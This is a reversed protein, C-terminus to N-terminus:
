AKVSRLRALQPAHDRAHVLHFRRWQRANLPGLIPHDLLPVSAGFRSECATMAADMQALQDLVEALSPSSGGTGTPRVIQPSKTGKPFHGLEVVVLAALRQKLTPRTAVPKGTTYVDQLAEATRTYTLSLHEVIEPASWTGDAPQSWGEPTSNRGDAAALLIGRINEISPNM